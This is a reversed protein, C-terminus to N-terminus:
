RGNNLVGKLFYYIKYIIGSEFNIYVIESGSLVRLIYVVLFIAIFVSLFITQTRKSLRNRVCYIIAFVPLLFVLPHYGYASVFDFKLLSIAARTMGCSPCTFGFLWRIPCGALYYFLVLITISLIYIIIKFIKDKKSIKHEM